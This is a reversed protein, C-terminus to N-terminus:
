QFRVLFRPRGKLGAVTLAVFPREGLYHNSAIPVFGFLSFAMQEANFQDVPYRPQDHEEM